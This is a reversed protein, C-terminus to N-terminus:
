GQLFNYGKKTLQYSLSNGKGIRKLLQDSVLKRAVRMIRGDFQKSTTSHSVDRFNKKAISYNFQGKKNAIELIKRSVTKKMSIVM